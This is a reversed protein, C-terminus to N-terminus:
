AVNWWLIITDDVPRYAYYDRMAAWVKADYNAASPVPPADSPKVAKSFPLSSTLVVARGRERENMKHGVSVAFAEALPWAAQLARNLTGSSSATWFADPTVSLSRAVKEFSALVTPHELGIPLVKRTEPLAEAYERARAQTVNLMGDPVWRFDAGLDLGRQQFPHLNDMSRKAMFLVAKKSYRSCVVPLSIQAYGYAPCSGFVWEEVHAYQPDHGILYDLGRVKSGVGLLDDRVIWVTHGSPLLHPLVVPAAWPDAWQDITTM